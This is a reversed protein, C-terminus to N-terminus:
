INSAVYIVKSYVEWRNCNGIYDHNCCGLFFLDVSWSVFFTNVILHRPRNNIFKRKTQLHSFVEQISIAPQDYGSQFPIAISLGPTVRALNVLLLMLM